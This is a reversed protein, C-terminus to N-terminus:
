GAVALLVRAGPRDTIYAGIHAADLQHREDVVDAIGNQMGLRIDAGEVGFFVGVPGAPTRPTPLPAGAQLWGAIDAVVYATARTRDFWFAIETPVTCGLRGWALLWRMAIELTQEVTAVRVFDGLANIEEPSFRPPKNTIRAARGDFSGWASAYHRHVRLHMDLLPDADTAFQRPSEFAWTEPQFELPEPLDADFARLWAASVPDHAMILLRWRQGTCICLQEM